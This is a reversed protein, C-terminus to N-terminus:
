EESISKRKIIGEFRLRELSGARRLTRLLFGVSDSLHRLRQSRQAINFRSGISEDRDTM